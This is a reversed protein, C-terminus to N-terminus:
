VCPCVGNKGANLHLTRHYNTFRLKAIRNRDPTRVVVGEARGRGTEDLTVLSRPAQARLWMDTDELTTPLDEGRITTTPVRPVIHQVVDLLGSEAFTQEGRDRWGAVYEADWTLKHSLDRTVGVDFLRYGTLDRSTTYNRANSGVNGGYVELYYSLATDSDGIPLKPAIVELTSVIRHADNIVRDGRATLLDERSGIVWDGSPLVIVRGNAGDVKETVEVIKAHKFSVILEEHLKGKHDLVHYTPISPYKTLSNLRRLVDRTLEV